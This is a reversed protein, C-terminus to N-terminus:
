NSRSQTVMITPEIIEAKPVKQPAATKALNEQKSTSPSVITKRSAVQKQSQIHKFKRKRKPLINYIFISAWIIIIVGAIVGVIILMTLFITTIIHSILVSISGLSLLSFFAFLIKGNKRGVWIGFFSCTVMIVGVITFPSLLVKDIYIQTVEDQIGFFSTVYGIVGLIAFLTVLQVLRSNRKEIRSRSLRGM